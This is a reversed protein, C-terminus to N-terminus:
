VPAPARLAELAERPTEYSRAVSRSRVPLVYVQHDKCELYAIVRRPDSRPLTPDCAVWGGDGVWILEPAADIGEATAEGLEPRLDPLHPVFTSSM